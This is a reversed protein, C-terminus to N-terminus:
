YNNLTLNQIGPLVSNKHYHIKQDPLSINPLKDFFTKIITPLTFRALNAGICFHTGSGFALHQNPERSIIFKDPKLFIDPDRNATYLVLRVYDNKSITVNAISIDESAKRMIMQTPSIFRLLEEVMLPYNQTNEKLIELQETNRLLTYIGLGTLHTTTIQGGWLLMILNAIIQDETLNEKIITNALLDEIVDNSKNSKNKILNNFYDYLLKAANNAKDLNTDFAGNSTFLTFDDLLSNILEFDNIDIKLIHMIIKLPLPIAYQTIVDVQKSNAISLAETLTLNYIDDKYIDIQKKSFLDDFVKRPSSHEPLDFTNLWLMKIKEVPSIKSSNFDKIKTNFLNNSMKKNHILKKVDKYRTIVWMNEKNCFYPNSLLYKYTNKNM